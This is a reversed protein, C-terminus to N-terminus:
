RNEILEVLRPYVVEPKVGPDAPDLIDHPLGLERPFQFARVQATHHAQWAAVLADCLANNVASDNANTVMCVTRAAPPYKRATDLLKDSLLFAQALTHTAFRPYAYAMGTNERVRPDWWMFINPLRAFARAVPRTLRVPIFGAGYAPSMIVVRAVDDRYQALWTAMVGGLSLGVVVLQKGLGLAIDAANNAWSVMEDASLRAHDASMREKYGHYLLRPAFVNHGREYLMKGLPDFQHTSDTYGQLYLVAWPTRAGHSWFKTTSLEHITDDDRAQLATIQAVAADYTPAPNAM